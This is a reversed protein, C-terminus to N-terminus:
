DSLYGTTSVHGLILYHSHEHDLHEHLGLPRVVCISSSSGLDQTAEPLHFLLGFAVRLLDLEPDTPDLLDEEILDDLSLLLPNGAFASPSAYPSGSRGVPGLPLMQWVRQGASDLWRVFARAQPGLDGMGYENPLSTPHLLVGSRRSTRDPRFSPEPSVPSKYSLRVVTDLM